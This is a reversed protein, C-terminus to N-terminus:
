ARRVDDLAPRAIEGPRDHWAGQWLAFLPGCAAHPIGLVEAAVCGGFELPDRVIVDPCWARGIELLDPIMRPTLFAAFVDRVPAFTETPRELQGRVHAYVADRESFTFDFGAPFCRFGLAEVPPCFSRACAFAVEHGAAELARALPVLPHLGGYGPLTTLLVRM